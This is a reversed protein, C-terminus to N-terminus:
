GRITLVPCRAEAVVKHATRWPFHTAATLHGDPPRVGLVILDANRQAAMKLIGDAPAEFGIVPEPKFWMAADEPVLSSLRQLAAEIPDSGREQRPYEEIVHLLALRAHFERALSIAYPVAALSDPSFDTAYVIDRLELEAPVLDHKKGPVLPLKAHGSIKPGVTLVPCPAQRFIQEAVSGMLLKGVGTRGHTGVVLLDIANSRVLGSLSEWIQGYSVHTQYPVDDFRETLQSMKGEAGIKAGELVSEFGVADLSGTMTLMQGESLVHALHLVSGYRRSIALAYPLAAESASSFDTAFLINKLTIATASQQELVNM